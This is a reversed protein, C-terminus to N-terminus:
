VTYYKFFHASCLTNFEKDVALRKHKEEEFLIYDSSNHDTDSYRYGCM